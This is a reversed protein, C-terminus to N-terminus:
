TVLINMSLVNCHAVHTNRQAKPRCTRMAAACRSGFFAPIPDRAQAEHTSLLAVDEARLAYNRDDWIGINALAPYDVKADVGRAPDVRNAAFAVNSIAVVAMSFAAFAFRARINRLARYAFIRVTYKM